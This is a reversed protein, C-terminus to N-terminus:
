ITAYLSPFYNYLFKYNRASSVGRNPHQLVRIREDKQALGDCINGSDDSSGDDVELIELEEESGPHWCSLICKEIFAEVNNAATITSLSIM